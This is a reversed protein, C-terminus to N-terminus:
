CVLAQLHQKYAPSLLDGGKLCQRISYGSALPSSEDTNTWKDQAIYMVAPICYQAVGPQHPDTSNVMWVPLVIKTYFEPCGMFKDLSDMQPPTMCYVCGEVSSQPSFEINAFGGAEIDQGKKNFKLAFGFLIGWLRQKVASGIYTSLRAPNMTPGYAFYYLKGPPPRANIKFCLPPFPALPADETKSKAHRPKSSAVIELNASKSESESIELGTTQEQDQSKSTFDTDVDYDDEEDTLLESRHTVAESLESGCGSDSVVDDRDLEGHSKDPMAPGGRSHSAPRSPKSSTPRSKGSIPRPAPTMSVGTALMIDNHFQPRMRSQRSITAGDGEDSAMTKLRPSVLDDSYCSVGQSEGLLMKYELVISQQQSCEDIFETDELEPRSQLNDQSLLRQLSSNPCVCTDEDLGCVSCYLVPGDVEPIDDYSDLDERRRSSEAKVEELLQELSKLCIGQNEEDDMEDAADSPDDEKGGHSSKSNRDDNNGDDRGKGGGSSGDGSSGGGGSGNSHNGGDGAGGGSGGDDGRGGKGDSGGDTRDRDGSKWDGGEDADKEETDKSDDEQREDKDGKESKEVRGVDERMASTESEQVADNERDVEDNERSSETRSNDINTPVFIDPESAEKPLEQVNKTEVSKRGEQSTEQELVQGLVSEVKEGEGESAGSNDTVDKEPIGQATDAVTILVERSAEIPMEERKLQEQMADGCNGDEAISTEDIQVQPVKSPIDASVSTKLDSVEEAIIASEGNETRPLAGTAESSVPEGVNQVIVEIEAKDSINNNEVDLDRDTIAGNSDPILPAVVGGCSSRNKNEDKQSGIADPLVEQADSAIVSRMGEDKREGPTPVDASINQMGTDNQESVVIAREDDISIEPVTHSIAVQNPVEVESNGVSVGPQKTPEKSDAVDLTKNSDQMPSETQEVKEEVAHSSHISDTETPNAYIQEPSKSSEVDNNSTVSVHPAEVNNSNHDILTDNSYLNQDTQPETSNSERLTEKERSKGRGDGQGQTGVDDLVGSSQHETELSFENDFGPDMETVDSQEDDLEPPNSKSSAQSSRKVRSVMNCLIEARGGESLYDSMSSESAADSLKEGDGRATPMLRDSDYEIPLGDLLHLYGGDPVASNGPIGQMGTYGEDAGHGNEMAPIDVQNIVSDDIVTVMSNFPGFPATGEVMSQSKLKGNMSYHTRPAILYDRDLSLASVISTRHISEHTDPRPPGGPDSLSTGSGRHFVDPPLMSLLEKKRQILRTKDATQGRRDETLIGQCEQMMPGDLQFTHLPKLKGKLLRGGKRSPPPDQQRALSRTVDHLALITSEKMEQSPSVPRDIPTSNDVDHKFPQSVHFNTKLDTAEVVMAPQIPALRRRGETPTAQHPWFRNNLSWLSPPGALFASSKHTFFSNYNHVSSGARSPVRPTSKGGGYPSFPQHNPTQSRRASGATGPPIFEPIIRKAVSKGHKRQKSSNSKGEVVVKDAPLTDVSLFPTPEDPRRPRARSRITKRAAPPSTSPLNSDILPMVMVNDPIGNERSSDMFSSGYDPHGNQARFSPSGNIPDLQQPPSGFSPGYGRGSMGIGRLDGAPGGAPAGSIGNSTRISSAVEVPQKWTLTTTPSQKMTDETPSLAQM